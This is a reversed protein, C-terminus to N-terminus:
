LQCLLAQCPYSNFVLSFVSLPRDVSERGRLSNQVIHQDNGTFVCTFRTCTDLSPTIGDKPFIHNHFRQVQQAAMNRSAGVDIAFRHTNPTNHIYLWPKSVHISVSLVLSLLHILTCVTSLLMLRFNGLFM